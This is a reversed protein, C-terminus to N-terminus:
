LIMGSTKLRPEILDDAEARAKSTASLRFDRQVSQWSAVGETRSQVSKPVAGAFGLVVLSIITFLLLGKFKVVAEFPQAYKM